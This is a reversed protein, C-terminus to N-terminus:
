ASKTGSLYYQAGFPLYGLLSDLSTLFRGVPLVSIITRTQVKNFGARTFMHRLKGPRLLVADKDIDCTKVIYQTAPNYPNHEFVLALGGPKIVRYMEGIFTTWLPPPVHHMVCVTFVVSFQGDSYPLREGDFSAYHVFPHRAAAAEVSRVSVDIGHLERFKGELGPHYAGIGCGLDLVELDDVREFHQQALRLIHNRKIDIYFAHEKGGFAVAANIKDEYADAFDDFDKAVQAQTVQEPNVDAM